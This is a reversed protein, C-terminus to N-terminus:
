PKTRLRNLTLAFPAHTKNTPLRSVSIGQHSREGGGLLLISHATSSFAAWLKTKIPIDAIWCATTYQTGGVCPRRDTFTTVHSHTDLFCQFFVGGSGARKTRVSSVIYFLFKATSWSQVYLCDPYNRSSYLMRM